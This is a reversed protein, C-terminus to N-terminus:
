RDWEVVVAEHVDFNRVPIVLSGEQEKFEVPVNDVPYFVKVEKHEPLRVSVVAGTVPTRYTYNTLHVIFRKPQTRVVVEVNKDCDATLPLEHGAAKLGNAVLSTMLERVGPFYDKFHNKTEGGYMAGEYALGLKRATIFTSRGKGVSNLIIAPDGTDFKALVKGTTPEVKDYTRRADYTVVSSPKLDGLVPDSEAVALTKAGEKEELFKAGFVDTLAYTKDPRASGWADTLTTQPTAILTGGAQVYARLIGVIKESLARGDVLIAVGYPSLREPTLSDTYRVDVQVHSQAMAHYWGMNNYFYQTLDYGSVRKEPVEASDIIGTRESYLLAIKSPSGTKVLYPEIKKIKQFTRVTVDWMGPRWTYDLWGAWRTWLEPLRYPAQYWWNWVWIGTGHTLPICIDREYSHPNNEYCTGACLGTNGKADARMLEIEFATEYNGTNYIDTTGGRIVASNLRLAGRQPVEAIWQQIVPYAALNPRKAALANDLAGMFKAMNQQVFEQWEVWLVQEEPCAIQSPPNIVSYFLLSDKHADFKEKTILPVLAAELEAASAFLRDKVGELKGTVEEPIKPEKQKKLTDLTKDTVKYSAKMGEWKQTVAQLQEPTLQQKLHERFATLSKDHVAQYAVPEDMEFGVFSPCDDMAAADKLRKDLCEQLNFTDYSTDTQRILPIIHGEKKMVDVVPLYSGGYCHMVNAGAAVYAKTVFEAKESWYGDNMITRFFEDELWTASKVVPERPGARFKLGDIRQRLPAVLLKEQELIAGVRRMFDDRKSQQTAQVREVTAAEPGGFTMQDLELKAQNNAKVLDAVATDFRERLRQLEHQVSLLEAEPLKKREYLSQIDWGILDVSTGVEFRIRDVWYEIERWLFWNQLRADCLKRWDEFKEPERKPATGLWRVANLLFTKEDGFPAPRTADGSLGVVSGTMVIRGLGLTGAVITPFGAKNEALVTGRPGVELLTQDYYAHMFRDPLGAMVPHKKDKVVFVNENMRHFNKGVEPFAEPVCRYGGIGYHCLLLGHGSSVYAGLVDRNKKPARDWVAGAM